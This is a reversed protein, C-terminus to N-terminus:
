IKDFKNKLESSYYEPTKKKGNKHLELDYYDPTIGENNLMIAIDMGDILQGEETNNVKRSSKYGRKKNIMLLVRAFQELTLQEKAALSRLKYTEFTTNNGNEALISEETIWNNQKFIQILNERR